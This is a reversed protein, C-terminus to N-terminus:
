GRPLSTWRRLDSSVVTPFASAWERVMEATIEEVDNIHKVSPFASEVVRRAQPNKEVAIFGLVPVALSDLSM